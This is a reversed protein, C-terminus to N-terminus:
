GPLIRSEAPWRPTPVRVSEGVPVGLRGLMQVRRSTKGLAAHTAAYHTAVEPFEQLAQSWPHLGLGLGTAALNLRLWDRGADFAAERTDAGALWVFAPTADIIGRQMGVMMGYAQSQPDAFDDRRLAGRALLDEVMPGGVSVGDPQATIAARGLRMLNVTEM